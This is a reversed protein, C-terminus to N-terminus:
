GTLYRSFRRAPSVLGQRLAKILLGGHNDFSSYQAMLSDVIGNKQITKFLSDIQHNSLLQYARRAWYERKLESLLLAQWERQYVMLQKRSYDRQIIAKHLAEAAMDACLMGFYLGGGTTPKVQGAADGVVLLRERVTSNLPKLPIGCYQVNFESPKIKGLSVLESLWERLHQGPSQRTMLGALVQGTSTPALWAFFGPAIKQNFFVEVEHCHDTAVRTQVGTVQFGPQGLGAQKVLPSNFGCALVVVEAELKAQSVGKTFCIEASQHSINIQTVDCDLMYRVGQSEAQDALWRDFQPRDIIGAQPQAHCLRILNGSPSHFSASKLHRYIVNEPISFHTICKQSIIGTCCPKLGTQARKELVVVQHGQSAIQGALRSGVPGAGIVAVDFM